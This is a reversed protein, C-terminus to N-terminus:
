CRVGQIDTDGRFELQKGEKEAQSGQQHNHLAAAEDVDLSHLFCMGIGKYKGEWVLWMPM